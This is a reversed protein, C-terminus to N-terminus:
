ALRVPELRAAHARIRVVEDQTFVIQRDRFRRGVPVKGGQRWRWLTQRSVGVLRAVEAAPHYERGEIEIAM